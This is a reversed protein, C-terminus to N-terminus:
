TVTATVGLQVHLVADSDAIAYDNFTQDGFVSTGNAFWGQGVSNVTDGANGYVYLDNSSDSLQLLDLASLTLANSGTGTLDIVELNEYRSSPISTLDLVQGAGAFRLTDVGSGGDLHRDLPDFIFVDDGAAGTLADTGGAGDLTDNGLGGILAEDDTTGTLGDNGSTGMVDVSDAFDQGFVLYSAGSNSGTPDALRAGIIVDDFGDGNVDGTGSVSNGFFDGAAGGVLRFIGETATSIDLNAAFGNSKGFVIYVEGAQLGNSDAYPEGIILDDFGDGNVDGASSVNVGTSPNGPGSRLKFGNVGNLLALNVNAGFGLDTGFVVYSDGVAGDPAAVVFDDIGDGNVDGAGSVSWIYRNTDFLVFGDSGNLATASLEVTSAFGSTKGFVVYGPGARAGIILDDVGDGNIDGAASVTHGSLSEAVVGSLKFGDNGSLASLDITAPSGGSTGFVVYSQGSNTGNPDANPAGIVVDDFGDGNIDGANSVRGSFDDAAAGVLKFGATDLTSLEVSPGSFQTGTGYVLYSTGSNSGNVDSGGTGIIVDDYGDANFDGAGSVTMGFPNLPSVIFSDNAAAGYM